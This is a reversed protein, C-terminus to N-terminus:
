IGLMENDGPILSSATAAAAGGCEQTLVGALVGALVEALLKLSPDHKWSM